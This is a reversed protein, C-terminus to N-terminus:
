GVKALLDRIKSLYEANPNLKQATQLERRAAPRDGKQFHAQALHYRFVVNEPKRKCLDTFIRIAEDPLNKKIYIWGLTDSIEDNDPMQQKARQALTLAGDLDSGEEAKIYALNNLAIVNQPDQSLAEEYLKRSKQVEKTLEFLMALQVKAGPQNPLLDVARSYHETAKPFNKQLRYIEGLAGHYEGSNPNVQLLNNLEAIAANDQGDRQYLGALKLRMNENKPDQALQDKLLSIAEKVRNDLVMVEILGSWGRPDGPHDKRLETFYKRADAYNKENMCANALFFKADASSPNARLIMNLTEKAKAFEKLGIWSVARLMHAQVDAPSAKLVEDAVGLSKSYDQRNLFIQGLLVRAMLFDARLKVAEELESRAQNVLAPNNNQKAAKALIARAYEYHLVPNQPSKKVLDSLETIATDIKSLDGSSLRLAARMAQADTDDKNEKLVEDILRMADDSKQQSVLLQAMRKQYTAKEKGGRDIGAQFEKRANDPERLNVFYFDGVYAHGLPQSTDGALTGLVKEMEPRQRTLYYHAAMQIKFEPRKPNNEMKRRLIAEAEPVRKNLAYSTYLFDYVPAAEKKKEIHALAIKEAEEPQKSAVLCQVWPHIVETQDPKVKNARQYKDACDAFKQDQVDLYGALRLGDFSNPDRALLKQVVDQIEQTYQKARKPDSATAMIYIESLKAGADSNSPDLSFARRLNGVADSFAGLKLSTLGLKYYADAFQADEKIARRYMLVAQKYNGKEFYKNGNELFKQRRVKPDRSCAAVVLMLTLLLFTFARKM